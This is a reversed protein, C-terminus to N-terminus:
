EMEHDEVDISLLDTDFEMGADTLIDQLRSPSVKRLKTSVNKGELRVKDATGSLLIPKDTKVSTLTTAAQASVGIFLLGTILCISRTLYSSAM